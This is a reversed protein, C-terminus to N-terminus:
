SAAWGSANAGVNLESQLVFPRDRDPLNWAYAPAAPSLDPNKRRVPTCM